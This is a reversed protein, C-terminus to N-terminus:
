ASTSGRIRNLYCAPAPMHSIAVAVANFGNGCKGRFRRDQGMLNFFTRERWVRLQLRPRLRDESSAQPLESPELAAIVREEDDDGRIQQGEQKREEGVVDGEHHSVLALVVERNQPEVRSSSEACSTM